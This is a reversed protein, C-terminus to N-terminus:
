AADSELAGTLKSWHRGSWIAYISADSVGYLEALYIASEKDKLAYIELVQEATLRARGFKVKGAVFAEFSDNTNQQDDGWELQRPSICLKNHCLHRVHKGCGMVGASIQKIARHVSRGALFPYGSSSVKYPWEICDDHDAELAGQMFEEGVTVGAEYAKRKADKPRPAIKQKMM